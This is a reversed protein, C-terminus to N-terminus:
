QCLTYFYNSNNLLCPSGHDLNLDFTDFARADGSAALAATGDKSPTALSKIFLYLIM